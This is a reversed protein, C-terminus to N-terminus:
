KLWLVMLLRHCWRQSPRKKKKLSSICVSELRVPIKDKLQPQQYCRSRCHLSELRRARQECVGAALGCDWCPRKFNLLLPGFLLLVCMNRKGMETIFRQLSLPWALAGQLQHVKMRVELKIGDRVMFYYVVWAHLTWPQFPELSPKLFVIMLM